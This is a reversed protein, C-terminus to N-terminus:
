ANTDVLQENPMSEYILGIDADTWGNRRLYTEIPVGAAVAAQGAQWFPVPNDRDDSRVTLAAWQTQIMADESLGASGFENALRRAMQMADEWADGIVTEVAGIRALMPAEQQKQTGEAAVQETFQFRSLPIDKIQAVWRMAKEIVTILALPDIPPERMADVEGRARTTGIITNAQVKLRNSGDAKLDKGDSTPYFGFFKWIPFGHTDSSEVLAVLTHNIINQLSVVSSDIECALNRNRFHIIPIGLPKGAGDMWAVFGREDTQENPDKLPQWKGHDLFFKELHDSYYLTMRKRSQERGNTDTYKEIWRKVAYKMPQTEDDNPYFAKCGFGDGGNGEDCFRTHPTFRPTGDEKLDVFVFYEGDCLTGEYITAANADLRNVQWQKWAWASFAKDESTFGSVRMRDTLATIVKDSINLHLLLNPDVAGDLDLIEKLRATLYASQEGAAYKRARVIAKQRANEEENTWHALALALAIQANENAAIDLM